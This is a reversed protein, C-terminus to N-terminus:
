LEVQLFTSGKAVLLAGMLSQGSQAFTCVPGSTIFVIKM